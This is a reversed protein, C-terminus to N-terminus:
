AVTGYLIFLATSLTTTASINPAHYSPARAIYICIGIEYENLISHRHSAATNSNSCTVSEYYGHLSLHKDASHQAYKFHSIFISCFYISECVRLFRSVVLFPGFFILLSLSLSLSEMLLIIVSQLIQEIHERYVNQEREFAQFVVNGGSNRILPKKKKWTDYM